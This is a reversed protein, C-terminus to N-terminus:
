GSLVRLTRVLSGKRRTIADHIDNDLAYVSVDVRGIGISKLSDALPETVTGGHTKLKVYYNLRRAHHLIDLIDPRLFLEGGSLTLKLAGLTRAATLVSVVESTDMEDTRKDDLYCHCCDLNCRYLLDLHLSLLRQEALWVRRLRDELREDM